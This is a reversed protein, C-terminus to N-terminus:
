TMRFSMTANRTQQPSVDYDEQIIRRIEKGSRPNKLLILSVTVVSLTDAMVLSLLTGHITGSVVDVNRCRMQWLINRRMSDNLLLLIVRFRYSMRSGDNRLHLLLLSRM